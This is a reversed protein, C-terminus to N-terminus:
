HNILSKYQDLKKENDYLEDEEYAIDNIYYTIIPKIVWGEDCYMNKININIEDIFGKASHGLKKHIFYVLDHIAYKFSVSHEM